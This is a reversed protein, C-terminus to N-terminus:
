HIASGAAQGAAPRRPLSAEGLPAVAAPIAADLEFVHRAEAELAAGLDTVAVRDISIRAEAPDLIRQCLVGDVEDYVTRLVEHRAIVDHLAADLATTDLRGSLRLFFPVNYSASAGEM